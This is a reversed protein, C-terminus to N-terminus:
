FLLSEVQLGFMFDFLIVKFIIFFYIFWFGLTHKLNLWILKFSKQNM